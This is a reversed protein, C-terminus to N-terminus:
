ITNVRYLEAIVGLKISTNKTESKLTMKLQLEKQVLAVGKSELIMGMNNTGNIMIENVFRVLSVDVPFYIHTGTWTEDPAQSETVAEPSGNIVNVNGQNTPSLMLTDKPLMVEITVTDGWVANEWMLYSDKVQTDELFQISVSKSELGDVNDLYFKSGKGIIKNEMDDGRSTFYIYQGSMAPSEYVKKTGDRHLINHRIGM